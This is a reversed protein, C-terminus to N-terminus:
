AIGVDSWLPNELQLMAQLEEMDPTLENQLFELTAESPPALPKTAKPLVANRLRTRLGFPLLPRVYRLYLPSLRIVAWTKTAIPKGESENYIANEDIAETRPQLGLFADLETVTQRRSQFYDEARVVRIRDMGVLDRWPALQFAYRSYNILREHRRVELDISPGVLRQHFEHHHQSVIRRIPHRVLYIVKFGEPLIKVAREAVGHYDPLKAYGTSADCCVQTASAHDYIAAYAALGRPTLVDDSCLSHPEKDGTLYVQPHSALDMYLSTTGSKMAGIILISPLPM